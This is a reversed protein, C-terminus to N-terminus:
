SKAGSLVKHLHTQSEKFSLANGVTAAKEQEVELEKLSDEIYYFIAHGLSSDIIKGNLVYICHNTLKGAKIIQTISCKGNDYTASQQDHGIASPVYSYVFSKINQDVYQYTQKLIASEGAHITNADLLLACTLATVKLISM